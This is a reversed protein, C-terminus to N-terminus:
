LRRRYDFVGARSRQDKFLLRYNNNFGSAELRGTQPNFFSDARAKAIAEITYKQRRIQPFQQILGRVAQPSQVSLDLVNFLLRNFGVTGPRLGLAALAPAVQGMRQTLIAMWKRDVQQPTLNNNRGGSVTGRNNNGDGRDTHGYYNGTYGGGATRTGEAVGIMVFMEHRDNTIASPVFRAPTAAAVQPLPQTDLGVNRKPWADRLAKLSEPTANELPAATAPSAGVVINLLSGAVEVAKEGFGGSNYFEIVDDGADSQEGSSNSKMRNNVGKDQQEFIWQVSPVLIKKGFFENAKGLAELGGQIVGGAQQFRDGVSDYSPDNPDSPANVFKSQREKVREIREAQNPLGTRTFGQTTSEKGLERMINKELEDYRQQAEQRTFNREKGEKQDFKKKNQYSRILLDEKEKMRLDGYSKDPNEQQWAAYIRPDIASQPITYAGGNTRSTELIKKFANSEFRTYQQQLSPGPAGQPNAKQWREELLKDQVDQQVKNLNINKEGSDQLRQLEEAMKEQVALEFKLKEQDALPTNARQGKAKASEEAEIQDKDESTALWGRDGYFGSILYERGSRSVLQGEAAEAQPSLGYKPDSNNTLAGEAVTQRFRRSLNMGKIMPLVDKWSLNEAVMKRRIAQEAEFQTATQQGSIQNVKDALENNFLPGYFPATLALQEAAAPDGARLLERAQLQLAGFMDRDAEEKLVKIRKELLDPLNFRYGDVAVVAIDVGDSGKLDLENLSKQLTELLEIQKRVDTENDIAQEIGIYLGRAAAAGTTSQNLTGVANELVYSLSPLQFDTGGETQLSAKTAADLSETLQDGFAKGQTQINVEAKANIRKKYYESSIRANTEAIRDAYKLRQFTNPFVKAAEAQATKTVQARQAVVDPDDSPNSLIATNEPTALAEMLENQYQVAGRTGQAGILLDKVRPSLNAKADMLEPTTNEPDLAEPFQDVFSGLENRAKRDLEKDVFPIVDKQFFSIFNQIENFRAQENQYAVAPANTDPRYKAAASVTSKKPLVVNPINGKNSGPGINVSGIGPRSFTM